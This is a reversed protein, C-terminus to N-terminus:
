KAYSLSFVAFMTSHEDGAKDVLNWKDENQYCNFHLFVQM